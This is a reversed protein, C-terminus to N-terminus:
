PTHIKQPKIEEHLLIYSFNVWVLESTKVTRDYEVPDTCRREGTSPRKPPTWADAVQFHQKSTKKLPEQVRM